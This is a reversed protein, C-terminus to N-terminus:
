ERELIVKSARLGLMRWGGGPSRRPAEGELHLANIGSVLLTPEVAISQRGPSFHADVLKRSGHWLVVRQGHPLELELSLHAKRPTPHPNFYLLVSPKATWRVGEIRRNQWGRGPTLSSAEPLSPEPAPHLAVVVQAGQPSIWKRTYGAERLEELLRDGGDEFALRNFYLAAFGHEELRQVLQLPQLREIETQWRGRPRFKPVGYSFRLTETALFPRFHDYDGLRWPPAVEPFGLVPLQFVLAGAGLDREM